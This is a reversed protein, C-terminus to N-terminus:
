RWSDIPRPTAASRVTRPPRRGRLTTHALLCDRVRLLVDLDIGVAPAATESPATPTRAPLPKPGHASDPAAGHHELVARVVKGSGTATPYCGWTAIAEVLHLGHGSEALPDHVRRTPLGPASDFVEIVLRRGTDSLRLAIWSALVDSSDISTSANVANAVLESTVLRADDVFALLRWGSLTAHVQRRAVAPAAPTSALWRVM